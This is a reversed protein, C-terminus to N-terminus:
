LVYLVLVVSLLDLTVTTMAVTPKSVDNGMSNSVNSRMSNSANNGM